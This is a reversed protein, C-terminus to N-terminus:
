YALLFRYSLLRSRDAGTKQDLVRSSVVKSAMKADDIRGAGILHAVRTSAAISMPFILQYSVAEATALVGQAALYETGFHSACITIIEFALWEAVIMMMGPVALRIMPWWNTFARRSFGGWCQSGDVFKIYLALLVPLLTRTAAVSIPAGIFGMRLKWVLLWTLLINFPAAILFVSTTAIFHGQALLFRKGTEFAIFGPVAFTLVKLYLSSLRATEPDPVLHRLVHESFIWMTAVPVFLCLLFFTMRQCYIGVLHKQQSGYAQACLTDLGTALGQFVAFCTIAASMNAVIFTDTSLFMNWRCSPPLQCTVAGLELQGLRGAAFISSVDISYQLLFTVVLPAAYSLIIKTEHLWIVSINGPAAIEDPQEGIHGESISNASVAAGHSDISKLLSSTETPQDSVIADDQVSSATTGFFSRSYTDHAIPTAQDPPDGNAITNTDNELPTTEGM